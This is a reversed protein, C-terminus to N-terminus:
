QKRPDIIEYREAIEGQYIMLSRGSSSFQITTLALEHGEVFTDRVKHRLSSKVRPINLQTLNARFGDEIRGSAIRIDDDIVFVEQDFLKGLIRSNLRATIQKEKRKLLYRTFTNGKSYYIAEADSSWYLGVGEAIVELNGGDSNTLAVKDIQQKPDYLRLMLKKGDPAYLASYFYESYLPANNKEAPTLEKSHTLQALGSGDVNISYIDSPYYRTGGSASFVIRTGDPSFAPNVFVDLGPGVQSLLTRDEGTDLDRIRLASDAGIYTFLRGDPSIAAGEGLHTNAREMAFVTSTLNLNVLETGPRQSHVLLAASCGVCLAVLSITRRLKKGTHTM